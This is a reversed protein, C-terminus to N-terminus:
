VLTTVALSEYAAARGELATPMTICASKQVGLLRAVCDPLGTSCPTFDDALAHSGSYVVLITTTSITMYAEVAPLERTRFFVGANGINFIASCIFTAFVLSCSM